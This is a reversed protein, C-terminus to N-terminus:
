EMDKDILQNIKDEITQANCHNLKLLLMLIDRSSQWYGAQYAEQKTKFVAYDERKAM